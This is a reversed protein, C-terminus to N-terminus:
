AEMTSLLSRLRETPLKYREGASVLALLTAKRFVAAAEDESAGLLRHTDIEIALPLDGHRQNIRQFHPKAEDILGERIILGVWKFPAGELFGSELIEHELENRVKDAAAGVVKANLRVKVLAVTGLVLKRNHAM